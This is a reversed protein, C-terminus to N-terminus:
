TETLQLDVQTLNSPNGGGHRKPEITRERFPCRCVNEVCSRSVKFQNAIDTLQFYGTNIDRGNRVIENVISAGFDVVHPRGKM